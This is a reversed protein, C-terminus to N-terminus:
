QQKLLEAIRYGEDTVFFVEDKGARDELLGSKSLEAVAGRWQAESRANGQEAFNRGNTQVSSGALTQLSMVVGQRDKSAEVLLERAAPGITPLPQPEPIPVPIPVPVAGGPTLTRTTPSLDSPFRSIIKQALQRTFKMRFESLSDYQEFLSRARLSERFAKLASYQVNDIFDPHVPASSFYIMASKGARIHEEIEEVTGSQAAGTPSGIRTWFMAVLLDADKLLQGSIIAQPRNGTDPVSHTEWGIPMLVTRKDNAHITNWESIVDRVILREQPVDSPSAIMVNVVNATYSVFRVTVRKGISTASRPNSIPKRRTNM